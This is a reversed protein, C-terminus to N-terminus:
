PRFPSPDLPPPLALVGVNSESRVRAAPLKEESASGRSCCPDASKVCALKSAPTPSAKAIFHPCVRTGYMCAYMCVYMCVYMCSYIYIYVCTHAHWVYMCVYMCVYICVHMCVYMCVHIYIYIYVCVHMCAYM